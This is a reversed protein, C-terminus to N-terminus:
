YCWRESLFITVTIAIGRSERSKIPRCLQELFRLEDTALAVVSKGPASVDFLPDPLRPAVPKSLAVSCSSDLPGFRM